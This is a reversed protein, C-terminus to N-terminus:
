VDVIPPVLRSWREYGMRGSRLTRTPYAGTADWLRIRAYALVKSVPTYEPYSPSQPTLDQPVALLTDPTKRNTVPYLIASPGGANVHVWFSCLPTGRNRLGALIEPIPSGKPGGGAAPHLCLRAGGMVGTSWVDQYHGDHCVGMAVEVGNVRQLNYHRGHWLGTECSHVKAMMPGLEGDPRVFRHCNIKVEPLTAGEVEAGDIWEPYGILTYPANQVSKVAAQFRQLAGQILARDALEPDTDRLGTLSTEPTVLIEVGAAAAQRVGEILGDVSDATKLDRSQQWVGVTVYEPRPRRPGRVSFSALSIEGPGKLGFMLLSEPLYDINRVAAVPKGDVLVRLQSGEYPLGPLEDRERVFALSTFDTPVRTEQRPQPKHYEHTGITLAGTQLDLETTIEEFGALFGFRFLGKRPSGPVLTLEVTDGYISCPRLYIEAKGEIDSALRAAGPSTEFTWGEDPIAEWMDDLPQSFDTTRNFQTM